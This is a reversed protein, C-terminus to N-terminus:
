DEIVRNRTGAIEPKERVEMGIDGAGRHYYLPVSVDVVPPSNDARSAKHSPVCDLIYREYVIVRAATDVMGLVTGEVLNGESPVSM